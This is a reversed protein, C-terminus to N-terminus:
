RVPLLPNLLLRRVDRRRNSPAVGRLVPEVVEERECGGVHSGADHAVDDCVEGNGRKDPKGVGVPEGLESGEACAQGSNGVGERSAGERQKEHETGVTGVVTEPLYKGEVAVSRDRKLNMRMRSEIPEM